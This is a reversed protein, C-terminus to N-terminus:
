RRLHKDIRFNVFSRSGLKPMFTGARPRVQLMSTNYNLGSQEYEEWVIFDAEVDGLVSDDVAVSRIFWNEPSRSFKSVENAMYSAM